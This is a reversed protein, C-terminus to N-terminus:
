YERRRFRSCCSWMYKTMQYSSFQRYLTVRRMLITSFFYLWYRQRGVWQRIRGWIRWERIGRWPKWRQCRVIRRHECVRQHTPLVLHCRIAKVKELKRGIPTLGHENLYFDLEKVRLKEIKGSEILTGDWKFDKYTRTHGNRRKGRENMLKEQELTKESILIKLAILKHLLM